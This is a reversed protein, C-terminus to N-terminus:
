SQSVQLQVQYTKGNPMIVSVDTPQQYTSADVDKVTKCVEKAFLAETTQLRIENALAGSMLVDTAGCDVRVTADPKSCAAMAALGALGVIWVHKM